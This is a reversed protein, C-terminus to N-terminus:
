AYVPREERKMGSAMEQPQIKQALKRNNLCCSLGDYNNPLALVTVNQLAGGVAEASAARWGVVLQLVLSKLRHLLQCFALFTANRQM